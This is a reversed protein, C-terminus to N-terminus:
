SQFWSIVSIAVWAISYYCNCTRRWSNKQFTRMAQSDKRYACIFSPLKNYCWVEAPKGLLHQHPHPCLWSVAAIVMFETKAQVNFSVKAFYHIKVPRLNSEPHSSISVEIPPTGFISSVWESQAMSPIKQNGNPCGLSKGNLIISSYKLFVSNITIDPSVTSYVKKYLTVIYEKQHTLLTSHKYRMPLDYGHCSREKFTNSISGVVNTDQAMSSTSIMRLNKLFNFHIPM